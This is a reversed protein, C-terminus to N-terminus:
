TNFFKLLSHMNLDDLGVEEGWDVIDFLYDSPKHKFGKPPPCSLGESPLKPLRLQLFTRGRGLQLASEWICRRGM